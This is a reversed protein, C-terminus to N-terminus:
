IPRLLRLCYLKLYRMMQSLLQEQFSLIFIRLRLFDKSILFIEALRRINEKLNHAVEYSLRIGIYLRSITICKTGDKAYFRIVSETDMLRKQMSLSINHRETYYLLEDMPFSEESMSYEKSDLVNKM